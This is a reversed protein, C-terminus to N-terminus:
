IQVLILPFRFSKACADRPNFNGCFGALSPREPRVFFALRETRERRAGVDRRQQLIRLPGLDDVVRFDNGQQSTFCFVDLMGGLEIGVQQPGGGRVVVEGVHDHALEVGHEAAAGSLAGVIQLPKRRQEM